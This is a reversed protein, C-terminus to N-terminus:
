GSFFRNWLIMLVILTWSILRLVNTKILKHILEYSHEKSLSNHIPVSILFTFIFSLLSLTFYSLYLTSFKYVILASISFLQVLMLPAVIWSIRRSHQKHYESFLEPSVLLFLPYTHLQVLIILASM